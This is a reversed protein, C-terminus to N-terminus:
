RSGSLTRSNGGRFHCKRLGEEWEWGKRQLGGRSDSVPKNRQQGAASEKWQSLNWGTKRRGCARIVRMSCTVQMYGSLWATSDSPRADARQAEGAVEGLLLEAGGRQELFLGRTHSSEM